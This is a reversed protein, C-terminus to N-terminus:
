KEGRIIKRCFTERHIDSLGKLKIAERHFKTPYGKNQKFDYEPYRDSLIKMLRDRLVKAVISAASVVPILEDAKILTWQPFNLDPIRKNGDVIVCAPPPDFNKALKNVSEKMTLLSAELINIKDIVKPWTMSARWPVGLEQIKKFLNERVNPSIKKSDNLKSALLINEQEQTLSVAAAVVPGALAGRGAEDTGILLGLTKLGTLFERAENQEARLPLPLNNDKFM